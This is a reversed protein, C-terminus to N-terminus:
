PNHRYSHLLLINGSKAILKSSIRHCGTHGDIQNGGLVEIAKDTESLFFGVHGNGLCQDYSDRRRFVVVDGVKPASTPSGYCRFSGSSANATAPHETARLFCWNVFAACWPTVDGSPTTGTAKFFTVIVPNWRTPWGSTYSVQEAGYVGNAVEIFYRAIDLPTPGHPAKDIISAAV